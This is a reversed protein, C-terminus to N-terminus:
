WSNGGSQTHTRTHTVYGVFPRVGEKRGGEGRVRFNKMVSSLPTLCVCVFVCVDPTAPLGPPIHARFNPTHPFTQGVSRPKSSLDYSIAGSLRLRDTLVFFRRIRSPIIRASVTNHPVAYLDPCQNSQNCEEASQIGVKLTIPSTEGMFITTESGSVAVNDSM